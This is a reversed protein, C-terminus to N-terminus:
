FMVQIRTLFALHNTEGPEPARLPDNFREFAINAQYRVFKNMWWNVGFTHAVAHNSSARDDM